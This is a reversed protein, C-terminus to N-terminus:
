SLSFSQIDFGAAIQDHLFPLMLTRGRSHPHDQRGFQAYLILGILLTQGSVVQPSVKKPQANARRPVDESRHDLAM